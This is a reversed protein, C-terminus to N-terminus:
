IEKAEPLDTTVLRAMGNRGLAMMKVEVRIFGLAEYFGQAAQNKKLVTLSIWERNELQAQLAVAQMLQKGVGRQRYTKDVFIDALHLGFTTSALDYGAYFLVFAVVEDGDKALLCECHPQQSGALMAQLACENAMSPEGEYDALKKELAIIIPADDPTAKHITIPQM